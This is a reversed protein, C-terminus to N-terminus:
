ANTMEQRAHASCARKYIAKACGNSGCTSYIEWWNDDVPDDDYDCPRGCEPCEPLRSRNFRDRLVRSGLAYPTTSAMEQLVKPDVTVKSGDHCGCFEGGEPAEYWCQKGDKIGQCRNFEVTPRVLKIPQTPIDKQGPKYPEVPETSKVPTVPKAPVVQSSGHEMTLRLGENYLYPKNTCPTILNPELAVKTAPLGELEKTESHSMVAPLAVTEPTAPSGATTDCTDVRPPTAADLSLRYTAPIWFKGEADRHRPIEETLYGLAVLERLARQVSRENIKIVETVKSAAQHFLGDPTATKNVHWLLAAEIPLLRLPKPTPKPIIM